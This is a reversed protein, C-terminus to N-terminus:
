GLSARRATEWQSKKIRNVNDKTRYVRVAFNARGARDLNALREVAVSV